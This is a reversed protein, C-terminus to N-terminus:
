RVQEVVSEPVQEVASALESGQESVSVSVAATGSTLRVQLLRGQKRVRQRSTRVLM